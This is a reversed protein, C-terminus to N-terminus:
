ARAKAIAATLDNLLLRNMSADDGYEDGEQEVLWSVLAHAGKCAEVLEPAAAMLDANRMDEGEVEEMDGIGAICKGNADVVGHWGNDDTEARWPAPSPKTEPVM